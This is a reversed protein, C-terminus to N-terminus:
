DAFLDLQEEKVFLEDKTFDMDLGDLEGKCITNFPCDWLCDKTPNRYRLEPHLRVLEMENHEVKIQAGYKEMEVASRYVKLRHFWKKARLRELFNEYKADYVGPGEKLAAEYDEPTCTLNSSAVSLSGDKNRIPPHPVQKLLFNYLMGAAPKNPLWYGDPNVMKGGIRIKGNGAILQDYAWCYTSAQDDLELWGAETDIGSTTKHELLWIGNADEIVGDLRLTVTLSKNVPVEAYLEAGHVDFDDNDKAWRCYHQVIGRALDMDANLSTRQEEDLRDYNVATIHAQFFDEMADTASVRSYFAELGIHVAEGVFLKPSRQKPLLGQVFEYDWKKRCRKFTRRETTRLYQM